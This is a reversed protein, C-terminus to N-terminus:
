IDNCFSFETFIEYSISILLLIELFLLAIFPFPVQIAAKMLRLAERVHREAVEEQLEM